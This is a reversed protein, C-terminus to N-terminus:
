VGCGGFDMVPMQSGGVVWCGGAREDDARRALGNAQLRKLADDVESASFTPRWYEVLRSVTWQDGDRLTLWIMRTTSDLHRGSM